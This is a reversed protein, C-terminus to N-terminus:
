QKIICLFEFVKDYPNTFQHLEDAPVFASMGETLDHENGDADVMKGKGKEVKIVHEFDHTHRPTHGGPAVKFKRMVISQSGDDPGILIQMTVDKTGEMIVIDESIQINQNIRM